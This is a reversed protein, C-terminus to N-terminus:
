FPLDDEPKILGDLKNKVEMSILKNLKSELDRVRDLLNQMEDQRVLVQESRKYISDLFEVPYTAVSKYDDTHMNEPLLKYGLKIGKSQALESVKLGENNKSTSRGLYEYLSVHPIEEDKKM